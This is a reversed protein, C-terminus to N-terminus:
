PFKIPLLMGPVSAFTDPTGNPVPSAMIYSDYATADKLQKELRRIEEQITQAMESADRELVFPDDLSALMVKQYEIEEALEEATRRTAPAPAAM